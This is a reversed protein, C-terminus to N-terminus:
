GNSAELLTIEWSPPDLTEGLTISTSQLILDANTTGVNGDIVGEEEINFARFWTAVGTGEATGLQTMANATARAGPNIFEAPQFAPNQLRFTALAVCEPAPAVSVRSPRPGSYVVLSGGTQLTGADLYDVLTDLMQRCNNQNISMRIPMPTEPEIPLRQVVKDIPNPLTQRPPLKNAWNSANLVIPLSAFLPVDGTRVIYRTVEPNDVFENTFDTWFTRHQSQETPYGKNQENALLFHHFIRDNWNGYGPVGRPQQQSTPGLKSNEARPDSNLVSTFARPETCILPYSPDRYKRAIAETFAEEFLEVVAPSPINGPVFPTGIWCTVDFVIADAKLEEHAFALVREWKAKWAVPDSVALAISDTDHLMGHYQGYKMGFMDAVVRREKWYNIIASRDTTDVPVGPMPTSRWSPKRTGTSDDLVDIFSTASYWRGGGNGYNIDSFMPGPAIDFMWHFPIYPMAQLTPVIGPWGMGGYLMVQGGDNGVNFGLNTVSLDGSVGGINIGCEMEIPYGHENCLLGDITQTSV